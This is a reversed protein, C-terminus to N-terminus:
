RRSRHRPASAENVEIVMGQHRSSTVWSASGIGRQSVLEFIDTRVQTEFASTPTSGNADGIETWSTRPTTVEAIRHFFVSVARNLPFTPTKVDVIETLAAGTDVPGGGFWIYEIPDIIRHGTVQIPSWAHGINTAGGIVSQTIIGSGPSSDCQGIILGIASGGDLIYNLNIWRVNTLGTNVVEVPTTTGRAMYPWLILSNAAPSVSLSAYSTADANNYVAATLASFALAM